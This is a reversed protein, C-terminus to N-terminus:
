RLKNNAWLEEFKKKAKAHDNGCKMLDKNDNSPECGNIPKFFREWAKAKSTREEIGATIVAQKQQEARYKLMKLQHAKDERAKRNEDIRQQNNLQMTQFRQQTRKSIVAMEQNFKNLEYRVRLEVYVSKVFWAVLIAALVAVFISEPTLKTSGNDKDLFDDISNNKIEDPELKM